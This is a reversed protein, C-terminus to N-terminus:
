FTTLFPLLYYCCILADQINWHNLRQNLRWLWRIILDRYFPFLILPLLYLQWLQLPALTYPRTHLVLDCSEAPHRWSRHSFWQIDQVKIELYDRDGCMNCSTEHIAFWVGHITLCTKQAGRDDILNPVRANCCISMKWPKQAKLLKRSSSYLLSSGCM